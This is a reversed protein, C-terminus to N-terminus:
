ELLSGFSTLTKIDRGVREFWGWPEKLTQGLADQKGTLDIAWTTNRAPNFPKKHRMRRREVEIAYREQMMTYAVYSKSVTMNRTAAFCRNFMDALRQCGADPMLAKLRVLESVVWDPKRQAMPIRAIALRRQGCLSQVRALWPFLRQLWACWGRWLLM